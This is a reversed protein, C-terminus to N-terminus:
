ASMNKKACHHQHAVCPCPIQLGHWSVAFMSSHAVDMLTWSVVSSYLSQKQGKLPTYGKIKIGSNSSNRNTHQNCVHKNKRPQIMKQLNSDAGYQLEDYGQGHGVSIGKESAVNPATCIKGYCSWATKMTCPNCWNRKKQVDVVRQYNLMAISFWWKWHSCGSYIAM